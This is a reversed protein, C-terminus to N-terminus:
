VSGGVTLYNRVERVIFNHMSIVSGCSLWQRLKMTRHVTIDELINSWNPFSVFNRRPWQSATDYTIFSLSLRCNNECKHLTLLAMNFSLSNWTFVFEDDDHTWSEWDKVIGSLSHSRSNKSAISDLLSFELSQVTGLFSIICWVTMEGLSVTESNTVKMNM